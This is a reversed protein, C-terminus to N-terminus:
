IFKYLNFYKQAVRRGDDDEICITTKCFFSATGENDEHCSFLEHRGFVDRPFIRITFCEEDEPRLDNRIQAQVSPIIDQLRYLDFEEDIPYYRGVRTGFVVDFFIDELDGTPEVIATSDSVQLRFIMPHEREATRLTAVPIDIVFIDEGYLANSESVTQFRHTFGIIM